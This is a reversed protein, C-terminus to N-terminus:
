PDVHWHEVWPILGNLHDGFIHQVSHKADMLVMLSKKLCPRETGKVMGGQNRLARSSGGWMNAPGEKWSRGGGGVSDQWLTGSVCCSVQWRM